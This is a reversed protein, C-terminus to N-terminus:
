RSAPSQGGFVETGQDGLDSAFRDADIDRRMQESSCTCRCGGDIAALMRMEGTREEIMAVSPDRLFV